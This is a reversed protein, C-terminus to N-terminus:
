FYSHIFKLIYLIILFLKFYYLIVFKFLFKRKRKGELALVLNFASESSWNGKITDGM